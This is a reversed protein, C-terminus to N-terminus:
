HRRRGRRTEKLEEDRRLNEVCQNSFNQARQAMVSSLQHTLNALVITVSTPLLHVLWVPLHYGLILLVKVLGRGVVELRRWVCAAVLYGVEMAGGVAGGGM